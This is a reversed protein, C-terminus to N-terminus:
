MELNARKFMQLNAIKQEKELLLYKASINSGIKQILM